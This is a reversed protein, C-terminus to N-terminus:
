ASFLIYCRELSIHRAVAWATLRRSWNWNMDRSIWTPFLRVPAPKRRTSRNGRGIKIGGAAGCQDDDIMQPQYLLGFLPRRVFHVWYWWVGGWGLFYIIFFYSRERSSTFIQKVRQRHYVRFSTESMIYHHNCIKLNLLLYKDASYQRKLSARIDRFYVLHM